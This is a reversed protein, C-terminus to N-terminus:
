TSPQLQQRQPVADIPPWWGGDRPLGHRHAELSVFLGSVNSYKCGAGHVYLMRISNTGGIFTFTTGYEFRAYPEPASGPGRCDARLYGFGYVQRYVAM